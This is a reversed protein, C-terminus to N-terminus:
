GVLCPVLCNVIGFVVGVQVRQKSTDDASLRQLCNLRLNPEIFHRAQDSDLYVPNGNFIWKLIGQNKVSKERVKLRKGSVKPLGIKAM